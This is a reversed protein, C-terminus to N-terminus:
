AKLLFFVILFTKFIRRFINKLVLNSRETETIHDLLQKKFYSFLVEIIVNKNKKVVM